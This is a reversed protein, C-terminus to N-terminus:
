EGIGRISQVRRSGTEALWRAFAGDDPGCTAAVLEPQKAFAKEIDGSLSPSLLPIQLKPGGPVCGTAAMFACNSSCFITTAADQCGQGGFTGQCANVTLTGGTCRCTVTVSVVDARQCTQGWASIGCLLLLALSMKRMCGTREFWFHDVGFPRRLRLSTSM